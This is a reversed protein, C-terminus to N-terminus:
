GEGGESEEEDAGAMGMVQALVGDAFTVGAVTPKFLLWGDEWGVQEVLGARELLKASKFFKTRWPKGENRWKGAVDMMVAVAESAVRLGKKKEDNKNTNM